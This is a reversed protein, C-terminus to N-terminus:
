NLQYERGSHFSKGTTWRVLVQRMIYSDFMLRLFKQRFRDDPVALRMRTHDKRGRGYLYLGAKRKRWSGIKLLSLREKKAVLMVDQFRLHYRLAMQGALVAQQAEDM